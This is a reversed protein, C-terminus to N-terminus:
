MKQAKLMTRKDGQTVEIFYMGRKLNQGFNITQNPSTRLQSVNRGNTELVRINVAENSASTVYIRFDSPSPNPSLSVQLENSEVRDTSAQTILAPAALPVLAASCNPALAVNTSSGPYDTGNIKTVFNYTVTPPIVAATYSDGQISKADYKVSLVYTAGPTAGSIVLKGNSGSIIEGNDSFKSCDPNWLTIQNAKQIDFTGFANASTTAGKTQIVNITFNSATPVITAYYFFVGPTVIGVKNGSASYCINALERGNGGAKIDSCTTGTHFIGSCNAAATITVSTPLSTCGTTTNRVTVQYTAPALMAFVGTTNTYTTGNISYRINAAPGPTTVTITGTKVDCTPQTVIVSPTLTVDYATVTLVTKWPCGNADTRAIDYTGVAYDTGEYTFKNGVCVKGEATNDPTVDYATVTLVTKWPCGNADTRAIDYTGVAYDTGEYTFKNGVCVKGEATNDPTVDYATVTVSSSYAPCTGSAAITYTYVGNVPGSWSGGADKPAGLAAFLQEITPTTGVCLILTGNTGPNPAISYFGADVYTINQGSALVIGPVQGTTPNADSNTESTSLGTSPSATYCDPKTFTVTYTGPALNNFTYIGNEDTIATATVTNGAGDTGSLTVTVNPIGSETPDKVGDKNIDNWVLDGISGPRYFGADVSLNTQGATLTIGSVTGNIPDSDILDQSNGNVNSVTALYGTPTIFKVVYTGPDLDNFLYYGDANTTTTKLLTTGNSAYLQVTVGGIAPEGTNQIGNGDLDEWVYDGIGTKRVCTNSPGCIFDTKNNDKGGSKTTFENATAVYNGDVVFYYNKTTNNNIGEDFKLGIKGTTPDPNVLTAANSQTLTVNSSTIPLPSAAWTGAHLSGNRSVVNMCSLNLSFVTHSIANGTNGGRVTYFWTSQGTQPYNYLVGRYTIQQGFGLQTTYGVTCVNPIQDQAKLNNSFVFAMFLLLMKLGFGAKFNNFVSLNM